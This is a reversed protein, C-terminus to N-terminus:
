FPNNSDYKPSVAVQGTPKKVAKKAAPKALETPAKQVEVPHVVKQLNNKAIYNILDAKTIHGKPGSPTVQEAKIGYNLFYFWTSPSVKSTTQSGFM